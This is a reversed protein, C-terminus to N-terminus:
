NKFFKDLQVSVPESKEIRNYKPLFNKLDVGKGPDTMARSESDPARNKEAEMFLPSQVGCNVKEMRRTVWGPVRGRLEGLGM